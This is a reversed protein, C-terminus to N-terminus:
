GYATQVCFYLLYVILILWCHKATQKLFQMTLLNSACYLRCFSADLSTLRPCNITAQSLVGCGKLELISM